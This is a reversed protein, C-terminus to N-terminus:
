KGFNEKLKELTKKDNGIFIEKDSIFVPRKLFSYHELILNKFDGEKLTKVDIERAKIQTSKKSFLAEYSGALDYMEQLEIESVNQSKLERQEWAELNLEAIIKKCTSCTKLFYVKKM